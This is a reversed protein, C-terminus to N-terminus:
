ASDHALSAGVTKVSYTPASPNDPHIERRRVKKRECLSVTDTDVHDSPQNFLSVIIDLNPYDVIEHHSALPPSSCRAPWPVRPGTASRSSPFSRQARWKRRPWLAWWGEESRWLVQLDEGGSCDQWM